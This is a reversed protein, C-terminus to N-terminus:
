TGLHDMPLRRMQHPVAAHILAKVKRIAIVTPCRRRLERYIRGILPDAPKLNVKLTISYRKNWLGQLSEVTPTPLPTDLDEAAENAATAGARNRAEYASKWASKVRAWLARNLKAETVVAGQENLIQPHMCFEKWEAEFDKSDVFGVFDEVSKVGEAKMTDIFRQANVDEVGPVIVDHKQMLITFADMQEIASPVAAM